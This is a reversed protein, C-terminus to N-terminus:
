TPTGPELDQRPLLNRRSGYLVSCPQVTLPLTSPAPELPGTDM